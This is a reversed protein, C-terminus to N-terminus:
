IKKAEWLIPINETEVGKGGYFVKLPTKGAEKIAAAQPLEPWGVKQLYMPYSWQIVALCEQPNMRIIEDPTMLERGRIQDTRKTLQLGGFVPVTRDQVEFKGHVAAKGMLDSFMKATEQDGPAVGLLALVPCNALITKADERGYIEDLQSRSQLIAQIQIGLSRATSIIEAFGPVNGINAFEDLLFRVPVELKGNNDAACEYLRKFLFMYFTALVPKLIKSEGGIPLVCFIATKRKGVGALDIASESLLASVKEATIIKLKATLGAVANDYNSATAGLWREIIANSIRGARYTEEFERNLKEVPLAALAVVYRLTQESKSRTYKVLGLLAELLQTEKSVFYGHEDKAANLILCSALGAIEDDGQCEELPNWKDSWDPNALNFVQVNYGQGELWKITTESLEAKPDTVVFSQGEAAAAIINGMVFSYSKGSGTGGFIAAHGALPPSGPPAKGPIARIIKGDLKGLVIGGPYEKQSGMDGPPGTACLMSVDNIGAWRSTGHIPSDAVKLGHVSDASNANRKKRYRYLVIVVLLVLHLALWITRAGPHTLEAGPKILWALGTKFPHGLLYPLMKDQVTGAAFVSTAKVSAILDYITAAIAGLVFVDVIYLLMLGLFIIALIFGKSRFILRVLGIKLMVKAIDLGTIGLAARKFDRLSIM